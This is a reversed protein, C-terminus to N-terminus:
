QFYVPSPRATAEIEEGQYQDFPFARGSVQGVIQWVAPQQPAQVRCGKWSM